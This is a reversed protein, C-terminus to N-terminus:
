IEFPINKMIRIMSLHINVTLSDWVIEDQACIGANHFFDSDVALDRGFVRIKGSTVSHFTSLINFLTSKGAGNPGLLGLTEGKFLNVSVNNLAYFQKGTSNKFCKSVGAAQIPIDM